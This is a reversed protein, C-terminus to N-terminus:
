YLDIICPVMFMFNIKHKDTEDYICLFQHLFYLFPLVQSIPRSLSWYVSTQQRDHLGTCDPSVTSVAWLTSSGEDYLCMKQWEYRWLGSSLLYRFMGVKILSFMEHTNYVLSWPKLLYPLRICLHRWNEDCTAEANHSIHGVPAYVAIYM